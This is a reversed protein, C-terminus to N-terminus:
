SAITLLQWGSHENDYRLRFKSHGDSMDLLRVMSSGQKILYRIGNDVFTYSHGGYEIRHPVTELDGRFRVATVEVRQNIIQRNM